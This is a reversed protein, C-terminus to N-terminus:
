PQSFASQLGEAAFREALRAKDVVAGLGFFEHTVGDYNKYQVQVGANRLKEAYSAGESRLPDIDATIVTAPPLGVANGRLVSIYQDTGEGPSELYKNFYWKMSDRDLPVANANDRYSETDFNYDTVPSILLQYLPMMGSRDRCLMCVSAAINGGASEGGITIHKGDANFQDPHKMIYQTAAYADETPVPYKHEPAQRYDVSIVQCRALNTIARCSADYEDLTGIVWGGGHFYILTPYPGKGMPTYIRVPIDGAPGPINQVAVGGVAEPATSLHRDTELKKVADTLTPQQRAVAVTLTEIPQPNLSHFEDLVVRMQPDTRDVVAQQEPTLPMDERPGACSAAMLAIGCGVASARMLAMLKRNM